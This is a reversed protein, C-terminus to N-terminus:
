NTLAASNNIHSAVAKIIEDRDMKIYYEDIGAAKGKLVDDEGALSTLALLPIESLKPDSKIMRALELGNINPMEIDTLIIEFPENNSQLLDWAIQGDECSEVIYGVSTLFNVVQQRFFASDEVVLVRHESSKSTITKEHNSFWDPHSKNALEFVDLLRVNIQDLIVSGVIGNERFTTTDVDEGINHINELNPAIIGIDKGSVKVVIIFISERDQRPKAQVHEELSLLPLSEGRYQLITLGGVTDIQDVKIREIREIFKTAVGFKEDEHNTFALFTHQGDLVSETVEAVHGDDAENINLDVESAVGAIDVILAIEGDGLITAGAYYNCESFHCGLPKVVIEKSDFLEDVIIGYHLHGSEVVIINMAGAATLERRDGGDRKTQASVEVEQADSLDETRRDAINERHNIHQENTQADTYFSQIDLAKNLRVLPLLKGRLRFVESNNIKEIKSAIDTTKIRVLECINVQPIAMRIQGCRIILSPIIALTLPMKITITTGKDIESDIHITGGLSEINTKVVDMGVGRGSVDTIEAATSFGPAFILRMAERDTLQEAEDVSIVGKSIAAEIIGKPNIGAGDEAISINVKGAQHYADLTITGKPDKGKAIREDPGEIGHDIANRVLHTLPDGIAEIITKDLEVEKGKVILECNKDLKTSLDRIIRPFKSFVSGVQQMRTQMIAEQLESTVQDIRSSVTDLGSLDQLESIQVLQNRGLVLEGALNMLTDLVKVNVRLNTQQPSATDGGSADSSESLAPASKQKPPMSKADVPAKPATEAPTDCVQPTGEVPQEPSPMDDSDDLPLPGSETWQTQKFSAIHHVQGVTLDLESALLNQDIKSGLLMMFQMQDPLEHKLDGVGATSMYSSILVGCKDILQIFDYPKRNKEQVDTIFDVTVIYIDNGELQLDLMKQSEIMVFALTGDPLAIDVDCENYIEVNTDASLPPTQENESTTEDGCTQLLAVQASVDVSNSEGLNNVMSTLVDAGKLLADIIKPNPILTQSRINNLVTELEHALVGITDFGMFGASGKMSHIGRFVKNVLDTDVNAGDEEMQLFDNEVGVLVESAEEIFSNYLEQDEIEM